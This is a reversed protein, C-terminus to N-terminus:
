RIRHPPRFLHSYIDRNSTSLQFGICPIWGFLYISPEFGEASGCSDLSLIFLFFFPFLAVSLALLLLM